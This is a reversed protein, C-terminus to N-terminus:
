EPVERFINRLHMLFHAEFDAETLQEEKAVGLANIHKGTTRGWVNRCVVLDGDTDRFAVLTGYSFYVELPGIVVVQATPSNGFTEIKCEMTSKRWMTHSPWITSKLWLSGPIIITTMGPVIHQFELSMATDNM